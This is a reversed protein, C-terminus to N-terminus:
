TFGAWQPPSFSNQPVTKGLYPALLFFLFFILFIFSKFM